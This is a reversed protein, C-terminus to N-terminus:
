MSSPLVHHTSTLLTSLFMLGLVIPQRVHELIVVAVRWKKRTKLMRLQVPARHYTGAPRQWVMCLIHASRVVILGNRNPIGRVAEFVAGKLAGKHCEVRYPADLTHQTSNHAISLTHIYINILGGVSNVHPPMQFQPTIANMLPTKKNTRSSPEREM